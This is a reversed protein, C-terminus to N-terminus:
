NKLKETKLKERMSHLTNVESSAEPHAIAKVHAGDVV